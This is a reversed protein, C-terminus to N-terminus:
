GSVPPTTASTRGHRGHDVGLHALLRMAKRENPTDDLDCYDPVRVHATVSGRRGKGPFKFQISAAIPTMNQTMTDTHNLARQHLEPMSPTDKGRKERGTKLAIVANHGNMQYSIEKVRASQLEPYVERAAELLAEDSARLLPELTFLHSAPVCDIGELVARTFMDKLADVLDNSPAELHLSLRGSVHNFRWIIDFPKRRTRPELTGDSLYELEREAYDMPYACYYTYEDKRHCRVECYDGRLQPRFHAKVADALRHRTDPSTEPADSLSRLDRSRWGTKVTVVKYRDAAVNFLAACHLMGWFARDQISKYREALLALDVVEEGDATHLEDLLVAFGDATSLHYVDRFDSDLMDRTAEPLARIMRGMTDAFVGGTEAIESPMRELPIGRGVVYADLLEPAIRMLMGDLMFKCM